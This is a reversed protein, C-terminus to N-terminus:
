PERQAFEARGVAAVLQQEVTAHASVSGRRVTTERNM